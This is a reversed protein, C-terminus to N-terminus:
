RRAWRHALVGLRQELLVPRAVPVPQHVRPVGVRHHLHHLHQDAFVRQLELRVPRDHVLCVLRLRLRGIGGRWGPGGPEDVRHVVGMLPRRAEVGLLLHRRGHAHVLLDRGHVSRHCSDVRGGGAVRDCGHGPWRQEMSCLLEYFLGRAGLHHLLLDRLEHIWGLLTRAGTQLRTRRPTDRGRGVHPAGEPPTAM